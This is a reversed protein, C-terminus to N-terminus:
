YPKRGPDFAASYEPSFRRLRAQEGYRTHPKRSNYLTADTQTLIKNIDASSTPEVKIEQARRERPSPQPADVDKIEDYTNAPGHEIFYKQVQQLVTRAQAPPKDRLLQGIQWILQFDETSDRAAFYGNVTVFAQNILTALKNANAEDIISSHTHESYSCNLQELKAYTRWSEAINCGYKECTPKTVAIALQDLKGSPKPCPWMDTTRLNEINESVIRLYTDVLPHQLSPNTLLRTALIHVQDPIEYHSIQSLEDTPVSMPDHGCLSSVYNIMAVLDQTALTNGPRLYAKALQPAPADILYPAVERGKLKLQQAVEAALRAGLSYGVIFYPGNPHRDCMEQEITACLRAFSWANAPDDTFRPDQFLFIPRQPQDKQLADALHRLERPNGAIGPILFIPPLGASVTQPSDMPTLVNQGVRIFVSM